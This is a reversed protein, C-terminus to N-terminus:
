SKVKTPLLVPVMVEPEEKISGFPTEEEVVSEKSDVAVLPPPEALGTNPNSSNTKEQVINNVSAMAKGLAELGMPQMMIDARMKLAANLAQQITLLDSPTFRQFLGRNNVYGQEALMLAINEISKSVLAVQAQISQEINDNYLGAAVELYDVLRKELRDKYLKTFDYDKRNSM